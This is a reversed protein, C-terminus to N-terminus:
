IQYQRSSVPNGVDNGTVQHGSTIACLASSMVTRSCAAIQVSSQVSVDSSTWIDLGLGFESSFVKEGRGREVEEKREEM